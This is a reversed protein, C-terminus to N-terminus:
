EHRRKALFAEAAQAVGTADGEFFVETGDSLRIRSVIRDPDNTGWRHELRDLAQLLRATTFEEVSPDDKEIKAITNRHVGSREHLERVSLKLATRRRAVQQGVTENAVRALTSANGKGM